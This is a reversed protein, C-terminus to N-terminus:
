FSSIYRFFHHKIRYIKHLPKSVECSYHSPNQGDCGSQALHRLVHSSRVFEKECHPCLFIKRDHVKQIHEKLSAVDPCRVPCKDCTVSNPLKSHEDQLHKQYSKEFRFKKRCEQCSFPSQFSSFLCVLMTFM